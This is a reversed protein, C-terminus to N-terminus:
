TAFDQYTSSFKIDLYIKISSFKNHALTKVGLKNTSTTFNSSKYKIPHTTNHKTM